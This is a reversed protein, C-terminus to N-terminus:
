WVSLRLHHAAATGFPLWLRIRCFLAICDGGAGRLLASFTSSHSRSPTFVIELHPRTGAGPSTVLICPNHCRVASPLSLNKRGKRAGGELGRQDARPKTLYRSPALVELRMSASPSPSPSISVGKKGEGKLLHDM